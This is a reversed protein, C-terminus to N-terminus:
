KTFTLLNVKCSCKAGYDLDGYQYSENCRHYRPSVPKILFDNTARSEIKDDDVTTQTISHIFEVNTNNLLSVLKFYLDFPREKVKLGIYDGFLDSTCSKSPVGCLSQLSDSGYIKLDSYIINM